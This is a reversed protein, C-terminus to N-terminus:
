ASTTCKRQTHVHLATMCNYNVEAIHCITIRYTFHTDHETVAVKSNGWVDATQSFAPGHIAPDALGKLKPPPPLAM